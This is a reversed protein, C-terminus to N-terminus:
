WNSKFLFHKFAEHFPFFVNTIDCFFSYFIRFPAENSHPWVLLHAQKAVIDLLRKQCLATRNSSSAKKLTESADFM